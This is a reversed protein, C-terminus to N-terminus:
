KKLNVPYIDKLLEGLMEYDMENIVYDHQRLKSRFIHFFNMNDDDGIEISGNKLLIEIGMFADKIVNKIRHDEAGPTPPTNLMTLIEKHADLAKEIDDGMLTINLEVLHKAKEIKPQFVKYRIEKESEPTLHIIEGIAEKAADKKLAISRQVKKYDDLSLKVKPKGNDAFVRDLPHITRLPDFPPKDNSHTM